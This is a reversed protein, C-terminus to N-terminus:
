VESEDSFDSGDSLGLEIVGSDEDTVGLSDPQAEGALM